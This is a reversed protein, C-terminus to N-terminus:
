SSNYPISSYALTQKFISVIHFVVPIQHHETYQVFLYLRQPSVQSVPPIFGNKEDVVIVNTLSYKNMQCICVTHLIQLFFVHGLELLLQVLTNVKPFRHTYTHVQM